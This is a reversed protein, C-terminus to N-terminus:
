PGYLVYLTGYVTFDLSHGSGNIPVDRSIAEGPGIEVLGGEATFGCAVDWPNDPNSCGAWFLFMSNSPDDGDDDVGLAGVKVGDGSNDQVIVDIYPYVSDDTDIVFYHVGSGASGTQNIEQGKFSTMRFVFYLDGASLDDSDDWVTIKEITWKLNRKLTSFTGTTMQEEQTSPNKAYVAFSYGTDPELPLAQFAGETKAGALLSLGAFVITDEDFINAFDNSKFPGTSVAIAFISPSDATIAFDAYTGHADVLIFLPIGFDKTEITDTTPALGPIDGPKIVDLTLPTSTATPRLEPIVDPDIRLSPTSTPTPIARRPTPTSTAQAYAPLGIPAVGEFATEGAADPSWLSAASPAAAALGAVALAALALLRRVTKLM